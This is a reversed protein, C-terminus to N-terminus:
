RFLGGFRYNIGLKVVDFSTKVTIDAPGTPHAPDILTLTGSNFGFHDYEVLVSWQKAFAWEYGAGLTWGTQKDTASANCDGGLFVCFYNNVDYKNHSFALGGKGYLLSTNWAYGVRGTVSGFFDTRSGVPLPATGFLPTKGNFFPDNTQGDIGAWSFDGALGAVWNSAFQYDCGVQGGGIFSGPSKTSFSEGLPAIPTAPGPNSFDTRGWGAGVHAGVYCGTWSFPAPAPPQALTPTTFAAGVMVAAASALFYKKM